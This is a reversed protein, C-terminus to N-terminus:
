CLLKCIGVYECIANDDAACTIRRLCLKVTHQGALYSITFTALLWACQQLNKVEWYHCCLQMMMLSDAPWPTGLSLNISLHSLHLGALSWKVSWCSSAWLYTNQVHGWAWFLYGCTSAAILEHIMVAALPSDGLLFVMLTINPWILHYCITSVGMAFHAEVSRWHNNTKCWQYNAHRDTAAM